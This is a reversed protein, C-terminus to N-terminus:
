SVDLFEKRIDQGIKWWNVDKADKGSVNEFGDSVDNLNEATVGYRDIIPKAIDIDYNTWCSKSGLTYAVVGVACCKVFDKYHAYDIYSWSAPIVNPCSTYAERIVNGFEEPTM